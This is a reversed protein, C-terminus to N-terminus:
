EDEVTSKVQTIRHYAQLTLAVFGIGYLITSVSVGFITTEEVVTFISGVFEFIPTVASILEVATM